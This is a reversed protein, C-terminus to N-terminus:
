NEYDKDTGVFELFEIMFKKVQRPHTEVWMWAGTFAIPLGIVGSFLRWVSGHELMGGIVIIALSAALMWNAVEIKTVRKMNSTM